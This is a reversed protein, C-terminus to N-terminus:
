ELRLEKNNYDITIKGFQNLASQGLLLPAKSNHIISAKVNYLIKNGLQVTKLNILTGESLSGDAIQYKQIGIFDDESLTGQRFLYNAEVDSITIDSAGTDFIFEMKSGNVIVPITYVGGKEKMKITNNTNSFRDNNNKNRKNSYEIKQNKNRRGSKHSCSIIGLFIILSACIYVFPKFM